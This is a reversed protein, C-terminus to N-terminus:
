SGFRFNVPTSPPSRDILVQSGSTLQNGKLGSGDVLNNLPLTFTGMGEAVGSGIVLTGTFVTGPVSGTITVIQTSSDSELLTLPGPLAVLTRSASLTLTYTGNSYAPLSPTLTLVATPPGATGVEAAGVDWATGGMALNDNYNPLGHAQALTNQISATRGAPLGTITGTDIAPSGAQLHFDRGASSVFRPDVCQVKDNGTGNRDVDAASVLQTCTFSGGNFTVLTGTGAAYVINNQFSGAPAWNVMRKATSDYMVNNRFENGTCPGGCEGVIAGSRNGVFTNNYIKNNSSAAAGSSVIYLGPGGGGAPGPDQGCEVFLNNYVQNGSASVGTGDFKLCEATSRFFVNNRIIWNNSNDEIIIGRGQSGGTPTHNAQGEIFNNEIVSGAYNGDTATYDSTLIMGSPTGVSAPGLVGQDGTHHIWNGAITVVTPGVGKSRTHIGESTTWGIENGLISINNGSYSAIGYDPGSLTMYSGYLVRNDKFTINTPPGYNDAALLGPRVHCRITFGQVTIHSSNSVFFGMGNNDHFVFPKSPLSTGWRVLIPGVGNQPSYSDIEPTTGTYGTHSNTLNAASSVRYTPTGDDKQAGVVKKATTTDTAYWTEGCAAVPVTGCTGSGTGCSSCKTWGSSPSKTGDIYVVEGTGPGTYGYPQIKINASASGNKGSILIWDDFYRGDFAASEGNHAPHVGRVILTDGPASLLAVGDSLLKKPGSSGCAPNTGSGAGPCNGDVYYTAGYASSLAAFALLGVLIAPWARFLPLGFLEEGM